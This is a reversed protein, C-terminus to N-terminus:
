GGGLPLIDKCVDGSAQQLVIDVMAEDVGLRGELLGQLGELGIRVDIDEENWELRPGLSEVDHFSSM